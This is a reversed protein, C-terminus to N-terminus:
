VRKKGRRAASTPQQFEEETDSTLWHLVIGFIFELPPEQFSSERTGCNLRHVRGVGAGLSKSGPVPPWKEETERKPQNMAVTMGPERVWMRKTPGFWMRHSPVVEPCLSSSLSQWSSEFTLTDTSILKDLSFTRRFLKKQFLPYLFVHRFVCSM